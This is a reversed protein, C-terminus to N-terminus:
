HAAIARVVHVTSKRKSCDAGRFGADCKCGFESDADYAQDYAFGVYVGDTGDEYFLQQSQCIGHGSCDNPCKRRQCADGTYGPPCRCQGSLRNCVGKGSCELNQHATNGESSYYRDNRNYTINFYYVDGAFIRQKAPDNSSAEGPSYDFYVYVGTNLTNTDDALQLQVATARSAATQKNAAAAVGGFPIEASYDRQTSLKWQFRGGDTTTSSVSVVRVDVGLDRAINLLGNNVFAQLRNASNDDAGILGVFKNDEDLQTAM